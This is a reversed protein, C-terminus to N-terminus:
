ASPAAPSQPAAKQNQELNVQANATIQAAKELSSMIDNMQVKDADELPVGKGAADDIAGL